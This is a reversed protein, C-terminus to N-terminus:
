LGGSQGEVLTESFDVGIKSGNDQAKLVAKGSADDDNSFMTTLQVM